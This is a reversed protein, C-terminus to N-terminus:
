KTISSWKDPKIAIVIGEIDFRMYDIVYDLIGEYKNDFLQYVYNIDTMRTGTVDESIITDAYRDLKWLTIRQRADFCSVAQRLRNDPELVAYEKRSM